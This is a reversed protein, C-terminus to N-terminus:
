TSGHRPTRTHFFVDLLSVHVAPYKPCLFLVTPRTVSALSNWKCKSSWLNLFHNTCLGDLSSLLNAKSEVDLDTYRLCGGM